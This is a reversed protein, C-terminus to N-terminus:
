VGVVVVVPAVVPVPAPAVECAAEVVDVMVVDAAEERRGRVRTEREGKTNAAKNYDHAM